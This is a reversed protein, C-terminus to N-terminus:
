TLAVLEVEFTLTSNAPIPGNKEKGYGMEPPIIIIRKGGVKMGELGVNLGKIVEGSGHRFSLKRDGSRDFIKRSDTLKGVYKLHVFRGKKVMMGNGQHLDLFKVGGASKHWDNKNGPTFPSKPKNNFQKSGFGGGGFPGSKSNPQNKGQNQNKQNGGFKNNSNPTQQNGGFKNSQKQQNGSDGGFKSKQQQNQGFSKQNVNKNDVKSGLGNMKSPEQKKVAPTAPKPSEEEEEDDEEDDEIDEDELEEDEEDDEDMDLDGLADDDGDEESDEEDEEDVGDSNLKTKKVKDKDLDNLKRKFSELAENEDYDSGMDSLDDGFDLIYGTLHVTGEGVLFFTVEEGVRFILDLDNQIINESDLTCLLFKSKNHELMVQVRKRESSPNKVDVELCAKSIHYSMEVTQSYRRGPLITVGWFM